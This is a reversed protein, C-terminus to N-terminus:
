VSSMNPNSSSPKMNAMYSAFDSHKAQWNGLLQRSRSIDYIKGVSLPSGDEPPKFIPLKHITKYMPSAVAAECIQRRLPLPLYHSWCSVFVADFLIWFSRLCLAREYGDKETRSATRRSAWVPFAAFGAM